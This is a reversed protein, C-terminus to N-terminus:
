GESSSVRKLAIFCHPWALDRLRAPTVGAGSSLGTVPYCTRPPQKTVDLVMDGEMLPTTVRYILGPPSVVPVQNSPTYMIWPILIGIDWRRNDLRDAIVGRATSHAEITGGKGDSIVIHGCKAGPNRLVLAGPTAAARILSIETGLYGADRGWYGTYADASAPSGSDDNCGYLRQSVQYVCWSAFEACDWPGKWTSNDKPVPVGFVYKEGIHQRAVDIIDKGTPM